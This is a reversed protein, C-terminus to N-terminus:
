SPRVELKRRDVRWVKMLEQYRTFAGTQRAIDPRVMDGDADFRGQAALIYPWARRYFEIFSGELSSRLVARDIAQRLYAESLFEYYNAIRKISQILDRQDESLEAIRGSAFKIAVSDALVQHRPLTDEIRDIDAALQDDTLRLVILNITHRQRARLQALLQGVAWTVTALMAILLIAANRLADSFGPTAGFLRCPSGVASPWAGCAFAAILMLFCVAALGLFLRLALKM